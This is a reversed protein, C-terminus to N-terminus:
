CHHDYDPPLYASTPCSAVPHGLMDCSVCRHIFNCGYSYPCTGNNKNYLICHKLKGKKAPPLRLPAAPKQYLSPQPVPAAIPPKPAPLSFNSSSFNPCDYTHNGEHVRCTPCWLGRAPLHQLTFKVTLIVGNRQRQPQWGTESNLTM